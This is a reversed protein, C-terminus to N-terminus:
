PEVQEHAIDDDKTHPEQPDTQIPNAINQAESVIDAVKNPDLEEWLQEEQEENIEVGSLEINKNGYDEEFDDKDYDVGAIWASDWLIQGSKTKFRLGKMGEQEAM